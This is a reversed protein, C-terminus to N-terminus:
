TDLLGERCVRGSTAARCLRAGAIMVAGLSHSLGATSLCCCACALATRLDIHRQSERTEMIAGMGLAGGM